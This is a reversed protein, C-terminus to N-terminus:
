SRQTFLWGNLRWGTSIGLLKREIKYKREPKHISAGHQLTLM